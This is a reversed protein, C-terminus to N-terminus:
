LVLNEVLKRRAYEKAQEYSVIKGDLQLEEIEKLVEGIKKGPVFGIDLLDRGMIVPQPKSKAVALEKSKKLINQAQDYEGPMDHGTGKIDATALYALEEITAPYIRKALRRIASDTSDPNNHIFMHDKVLLIVRDALDKGIHLMSLFKQAPEIIDEHGRSTIRGDEDQKTAAPKGLDHCLASLMLVKKDEENLQKERALDVASDIVMKVHTWVDGEPHYKPNQPVGILAKIEPHLQDLVGLELAMEMGISPKPAKMLLKLWEEGIREKSLEKLDLAQCLEKTEQDIDFGFRASFQMARLVRLPDDVFTEKDTARLIKNKIDDIGGYFDLIEGTLPDLALANITFDRRQAAEKILMEPDGEIKFGKHGRGTKSDRRPISIDLSKLKIVGFASGVVNVEGLSSLIEKLKDFNLGYVEIDIDKPKLNYGFKALASDRAFGGVVLALGGEAKVYECVKLALGLEERREPDVEKEIIKYFSDANEILAQRQLRDIEKERSEESLGDLSSRRKIDENTTPNFKDLYGM